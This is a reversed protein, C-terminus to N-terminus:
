SAIGKKFKNIFYIQGKGTVKSTKQITAPGNAHTISTEKIEFLGLQMSYQTPTNYDTGKRKILYGNDRLWQFLKNPGVIIGNQQLIKSMEGVLISTNSSSVADAFAIKPAQEEIKQEKEMNELQLRQVQEATDALARLASPYDQPLQNLLKNELKDIYAIVAKRVFKSERVLVQRSQSLNLIYMPQQKNQSNLYSSESINGVGIEEEFEDRVIKLFDYHQLEKRNGEQERYKNILDVLELSTFSDKNMLM